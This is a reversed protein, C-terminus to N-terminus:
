FGDNEENAVELALERRRLGRAVRVGDAISKEAALVADDGGPHLRDARRRGFFLFVDAAVGVLQLLRDLLAPDRVGLLRLRQRPGGAGDVHRQGSARREDPM